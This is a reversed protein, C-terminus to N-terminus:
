RGGDESERATITVEVGAEGMQRAIRLERAVIRGVETSGGEIVTDVLADGTYGGDGRIPFIAVEWEGSPM